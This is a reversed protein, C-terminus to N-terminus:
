VERMAPVNLSEQLKAVFSTPRGVFKAIDPTFRGFVQTIFPAVKGQIKGYSRYTEGVDKEYNPNLRESVKGMVSTFVEWFRQQLQQQLITEGGDKEYNSNLRESVKGMVSTFVEWFGQSYSTCTEGINKGHNPCLRKKVTTMSYILYSEGLM